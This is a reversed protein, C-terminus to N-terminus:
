RDIVVRVFGGSGIAFQGIVFVAGPRRDDYVVVHVHEPDDQPHRILWAGPPVSRGLKSCSGPPPQHGPPRSPYWVRCEGPPPYHGKPIDLRAYGHRHFYTDKDDSDRRNRDHGGDRDHRRDDHRYQESRYPKRGKGSEDKGEDAASVGACSFLLAAALILVSPAKTM